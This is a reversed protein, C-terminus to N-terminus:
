SHATPSLLLDISIHNPQGLALTALVYGPALFQLLVLVARGLGLSLSVSLSLCLSLSLSFLLWTLRRFCVSGAARDSRIGDSGAREVGGAECMGGGLVDGGVRWGGM